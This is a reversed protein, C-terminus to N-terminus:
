WADSQLWSDIDAAWQKKDAGYKKVVVRNGNYEASVVGSLADLRWCELLDLEERRIVSLKPQVPAQAIICAQLQGLLDPLRTHLKLTLAVEFVQFSENLIDKCQNIEDRDSIRALVRRWLRIETAHKRLIKQVLELKQAYRTIDQQLDLPIDAQSKGKFADLLSSTREAASKAVERADQKNKTVAQAIEIIEIATGTAARLAPVGVAGDGLAAVIKLASKLQDLSELANALPRPM